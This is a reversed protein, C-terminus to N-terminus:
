WLHIRRGRWSHTFKTKNDVGFGVIEGVDNIWTAFVLYLPSDEPVLDNLDTMVYRDGVLARCNFDADCSAGVV